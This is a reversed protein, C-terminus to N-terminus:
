SILSRVVFPKSKASKQLVCNSPEIVRVVLYPGIYSKQWKPSKSQYRRPYHYYAWDGVAFREAKVQIDYHRKREEANARLHKRAIQFADVSNRQLQAVYDDATQGETLENLPLGMVLDIPMRVEHGLFLRNPTLGTSEHPTARYAALVLPLCEDWDRQSENVTKALMSNLTRHFREVVGNCSPHFVTTRLKDIEMWKMLEQFLESEFESGRDTLLQRPSGFRSFVHVMLARAVTPATHNRLPIAEAWKSFHDVLTLIYQNSKSSRPHPGTIDMSVRVWPEGVLPTQLSAKKPANGRHYRACPECERLFADLDSSWTPWYARSQISAATRKRALHKGHMGGYIVTLFEKRLKTPLIVQWSISTGDAAEFKRQLIGNHIRLRPWM